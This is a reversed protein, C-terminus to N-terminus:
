LPPSNHRQLCSRPCDCLLHM